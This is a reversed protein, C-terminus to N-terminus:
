SSRRPTPMTWSIASPPSTSPPQRRPLCEQCGATERGNWDILRLGPVNGYHRVNHTVLALGHVLATAAIFLDAPPAPKSQDLLASRIVGFRRAIEDDVELITVDSLLEEAAIRYKAPTSLRFTWSLLEGVTIASM